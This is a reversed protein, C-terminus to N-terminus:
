GVRSSLSGARASVRAKPPCAPREGERFSIPPHAIRWPQHSEDKYGDGDPRGRGLTIGDRNVGLGLEAGRPGISPFRRDLEGGVDEKLGALRPPRDALRGPRHPDVAVAVRQALGAELLATQTLVPGSEQDELVDGQGTTPVIPGACRNRSSALDDNAVREDGLVQGLLGSPRDERHPAGRDLVRDDRAIERVVVATAHVGAAAPDLDVVRDQAGVEDVAGAACDAGRAVNEDDVGVDVPVRGVTVPSGEVGVLVPVDRDDVRGNVAVGGVAGSARDERELAVHRDDVRGEVAIAGVIAAARDRALRIHRDDARRDSPVRSDRVHAPADPRAVVEVDRIGRDGPVRGLPDPAPQKGRGSL